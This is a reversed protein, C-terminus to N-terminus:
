SKKPNRRHRFKKQPATKPETKQEANEKATLSQSYERDFLLTLLQLNDMDDFDSALDKILPIFRKARERELGTSQRYLKNLHNAMRESVLRAIEESSPDQYPMLDIKYFKGIRELELKEMIDVLSIVTGAAGARGTRGARHIYSERDEPVEYLFVHSLHPIDIGRSAVDTAVLYQLTGSRLKNLVQERKNQPLDASFEAANYGFGQLVGAVYHVNNKTNCFIIAQSPNEKELLRTLCRDKDMPKCECLYHAAKAVHVEGQSLSITKPTHLFTKAVTLVNPPYTASFFATQVNKKPVFSKIEQMDHFFGVSLMRDAEDFVLMKLESLNLSRRILHDLVRGPTGIVAHVGKQLAQLQKAYRTGGYLCLCKLAGGFITNAEHEVQLALERTPVLILVQCAPNETDVLNLCPLLFAGTKGSGTRSQVMVDRGDLTYALSHAQVPMLSKWSARLCAERLNESLEEFKLPAKNEESQEAPNQEAEITQKSQIQEEM